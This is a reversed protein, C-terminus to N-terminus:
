SSASRLAPHSPTDKRYQVSCSGRDRARTASCPGSDAQSHLTHKAELFLFTNGEGFGWPRQAAAAALETPQQVLLEPAKPLLREM